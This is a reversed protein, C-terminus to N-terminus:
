RMCASLASKGFTLALAESFADFSFKAASPNLELAKPV